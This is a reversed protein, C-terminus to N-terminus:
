EVRRLFGEKVWQRYCAKCAWGFSGDQYRIYARWGAHRCETCRTSEAVAGAEGILVLPTEPGAPTLGYTGSCV